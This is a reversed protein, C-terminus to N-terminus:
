PPAAPRHPPRAARGGRAICRSTCGPTLLRSSAAMLEVVPVPSATRALAGAVVGPALDPSVGPRLAITGDSPVARADQLDESVGQRELAVLPVLQRRVSLSALEARCRRIWKMSWTSYCSSM